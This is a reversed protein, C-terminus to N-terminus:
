ELVRFSEMLDKKGFVATVKVEDTVLIVVNERLFLRSRGAQEIRDDRVVPEQRAVVQHKLGQKLFGPLGGRVNVQHVFQDDGGILAQKRVTQGCFGGIFVAKLLISVPHELIQGKDKLQVCARLSGATFIRGCSALIERCPLKDQSNRIKLGIGPQRLVRTVTSPAIYQIIM